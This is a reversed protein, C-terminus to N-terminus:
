QLEMNAVGGQGGGEMISKLVKSNYLIAIMYKFLDLM